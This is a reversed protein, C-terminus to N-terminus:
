FFVFRALVLDAGGPAFKNNHANGADGDVFLTWIADADVADVVHHSRGTLSARAYVDLSFSDVFHPGV